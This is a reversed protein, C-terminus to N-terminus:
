INHLARVENVSAGYAGDTSEFGLMASLRRVVVRAWGLDESCNEMPVREVRLYLPPDRRTSPDRYIRGDLCTFIGEASTRLDNGNENNPSVNM